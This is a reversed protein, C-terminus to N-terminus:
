CFAGSQNEVGRLVGAVGGTDEVWIQIDMDIQKNLRTSCYRCFTAGDSYIRFQDDCKCCDNGVWETTVICKPTTYM